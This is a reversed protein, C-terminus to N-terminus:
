DSGMKDWNTALIMRDFLGENALFRDRLPAAFQDTRLFQKFALYPLLRYDTTEGAQLRVPLDDLNAFFVYGFYIEHRDLIRYVHVLCTREARLGTEEWLERRAGAEPREGKIVAGTTVEWCFPWLTKNGRRTVLIERKPTVTYVEVIAHFVGPPISQGRILDFGLLRGQSDLADWREQKRDNMETGKVHCLSLIGDFLFKGQSTENPM